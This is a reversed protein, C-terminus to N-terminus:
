ANSEGEILVLDKGLIYLSNPEPNHCHLGFVHVSKEFQVLYRNLEANFSVITGVHGILLWYNEPVKCDPPAISSGNFTNLRVRAGSEM